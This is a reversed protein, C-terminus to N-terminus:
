GEGGGNGVLGEADVRRRGSNWGCKRWQKQVIKMIFYMFVACVLAVYIGHRRTSLM